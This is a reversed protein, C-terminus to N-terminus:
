TIKFKAQDIVNLKLSIYENLKSAGIGTRGSQMGLLEKIKDDEETTVSKKSELSLLVQVKAIEMISQWTKTNGVKDEVPSKAFTGLGAAMVGQEKRIFRFCERSLMLEILNSIFFIDKSTKILDSFVKVFDEKAQKIEAKSTNKSYLNEAYAVLIIMKVNSTIKNDEMNNLDNILKDLKITKLLEKALHLNVKTFDDKSFQKSFLDKAFSAAIVIVKLNYKVTEVNIKNLDMILKEFPITKVLMQGLYLNDIIFDKSTRPAWIFNGKFDKAYKEQDDVLIAEAGELAPIAKYAADVYMWKSEGTENTKGNFAIDSGIKEADERRLFQRGKGFAEDFADYMENKLVREGKIAGELKNKVVIFQQRQAETIDDAKNIDLILKTILSRIEKSETSLEAKLIEAIMAYKEYWFIKDHKSNIINTPDLIYNLADLILEKIHCYTIRQSAIITEIHNEHLLWLTSSLLARNDIIFQQSKSFFAGERSKLNEPTLSNNALLLVNNIPGDTDILIMSKAPTLSKPPLEKGVVKKAPEQPEKRLM